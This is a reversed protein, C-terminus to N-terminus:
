RILHLKRANAVAQSRRKADLKSLLNSVHTKVTSESIFLAKSIEKNSFGKVILGLVEYERNSIGLEKIREADVPESNNEHGETRSNLLYRGLLIGFLIFLVAFLAIFAIVTRKGSSAKQYAPLKKVVILVLFILVATILAHPIDINLKPM